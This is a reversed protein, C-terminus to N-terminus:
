QRGAATHAKKTQQVCVHSRVVSVERQLLAGTIDATSVTAANIVGNSNQWMM